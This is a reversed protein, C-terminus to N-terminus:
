KTGVLRPAPRMAFVGGGTAQASAADKQQEKKGKPEERPPAVRGVKELRAWAIGAQVRVSDAVKRDNVMDRLFSIPEEYVPARPRSTAGVKPEKPKTAPPASDRQAASKPKRGAGARKGGTNPRAGGSRGKVGAM